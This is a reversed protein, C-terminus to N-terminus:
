KKRSFRRTCTTGGAPIWCETKVSFDGSMKGIAGEFWKDCGAPCQGPTGYNKFSDVWPCADHILLFDDGDKVLRADEGMVLSAKLFNGVIQELDNPDKGQELYRDATNEGISKWFSEALKMSEDFGLKDEIVKRWHHFFDHSIFVMIRWDRALKKPDSSVELM